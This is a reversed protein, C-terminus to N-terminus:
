NFSQFLQPLFLYRDGSNFRELFGAWACTPSAELYICRGLKRVQHDSTLGGTDHRKRNWSALWGPWPSRTRLQIVM